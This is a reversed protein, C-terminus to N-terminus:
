QQEQQQLLWQQAAADEAAAHPQQATQATVRRHQLDENQVQVNHLGLTPGDRPQVPYRALTTATVNAYRGTAPEVLLEKHRLRHLQQQPPEQEQPHGHAFPDISGM